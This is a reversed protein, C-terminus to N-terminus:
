SCAAAPKTFTGGSSYWGNAGISPKQHYFWSFFALEQLHYTKGNITDTITTGSLPDGVELNNQCGSVQGIHGWPKTPNVVNPDNIWEGVEHTLASVDGSGSFVGTNDYISVGYSQFKGGNTFANHYGLICCNAPTGQYWVVNEVLFLPFVTTANPIQPILTTQVYNDFWAISVGALTGNGCGITSESSDGAPVNVTVTPNTTLALKIHYGPNIAGPKTQSYFEERQFIDDYQGKGLPATGAKWKQAVFVPSNQTRSLATATDCSDSASPDFVKGDSLHIKLPVLVTKVTSSANTQAVFPDKGVMTYSFNSTGDTVSRTFLPVGAKASAKEIAATQASTRQPAWDYRAKGITLRAIHAPQGAVAAPAAITLAAATGIATTLAAVKFLRSM